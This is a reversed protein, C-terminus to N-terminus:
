GAKAAIEKGRPSDVPILVKSRCKPCRPMRTKAIIIIAVGVPWALGVLPVIVAGMVGMCILMTGVIYWLTKDPPAPLALIAHCDSCCHTPGTM